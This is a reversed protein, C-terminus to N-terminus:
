VSHFYFYNDICNYRYSICIVNKYGYVTLNKSKKLMIYCAQFINSFYNSFATMKLFLLRVEFFASFKFMNYTNALGQNMQLRLGPFPASAQKYLLATSLCSIYKLLPTYTQYTLRIALWPWVVPRCVLFINKIKYGGDLNADLNAFM